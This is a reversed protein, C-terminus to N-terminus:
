FFSSFGAPSLLGADLGAEEFSFFGASTFFDEWGGAEFSDFGFSVGLVSFFGAEQATGFSFHSFKASTRNVRRLPCRIFYRRETKSVPVHLAFISACGGSNFNHSSVFLRASATFLFSVSIFMLTIMTPDM